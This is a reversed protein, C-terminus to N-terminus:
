LTGYPYYTNFFDDMKKKAMERQKDSIKRILLNWIILTLKQHSHM